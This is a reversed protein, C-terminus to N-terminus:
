GKLSANVALIINSVKKTYNLFILVPSTIFILKLM